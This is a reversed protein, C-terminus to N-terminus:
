WIMVMWIMVMWIMVMRIMVMRIMVIWIMMRKLVKASDPAETLRLFPKELKHSTGVVHMKEWDVDNCIEWDAEGNILRDNLSSLLNMPKKRKAPADGAFRAMRKMKMQSSGLDKDIDMSMPNSYFHAGKKNKKEKKGGLKGKGGGLPVMNANGGFDPGGEEESRRRRKNGKGPSNKDDMRMNKNFAPHPRGLPMNRVVKGQSGLDGQVGAPKSFKKLCAPVEEEEWTKSWLTSASAAATIKGKLIIEVMDKHENTECANFCRSVYAKLSPPWDAAGPLQATKTEQASQPGGAAVTPPGPQAAPPAATGLNINITGLKKKAKNKKNQSLQPPMPNFGQQQFGPGGM